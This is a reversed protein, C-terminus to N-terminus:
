LIHNQPLQTLSQFIVLWHQLYSNELGEVIEKQRSPLLLEGMVGLWFTYDLGINKNHLLPFPDKLPFYKPPWILYLVQNPPEQTVNRGGVRDIKEM